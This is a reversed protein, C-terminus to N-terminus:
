FGIVVVPFRLGDCPDTITLETGASFIKIKKNAEDWSPEYGENPSLLILKIYRLQFMGHTYAMGGVVYTGDSCVIEGVRIKVTGWSQRPVVEEFSLTCDAM